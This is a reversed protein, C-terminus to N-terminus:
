FLYFTNVKVQRQIRYYFTENWVPNKCNNVTKTKLKETTATPLCLTVYCDSHSVTYSLPFLYHQWNRHWSGIMNLAAYIVFIASARDYLLSDNYCQTWGSSKLLLWLANIKLCRLVYLIGIFWCTRCSKHWMNQGILSLHVHCRNNDKIM